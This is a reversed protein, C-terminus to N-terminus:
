CSKGAGNLSGQTASVSPPLGLPEDEGGKGKGRGRRSDPELESLTSLGIEEDKFQLHYEM